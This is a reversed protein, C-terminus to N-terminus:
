PFVMSRPILEEHPQTWVVLGPLGEESETARPTRVTRLSLTYLAQVNPLFTGVLKHLVQLM